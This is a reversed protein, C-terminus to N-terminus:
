PSTETLTPLERGCNDISSHKLYRIPSYSTVIDSRTLGPLVASM